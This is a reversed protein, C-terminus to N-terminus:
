VSTYNSKPSTHQRERRRLNTQWGIGAAALLLLGTNPEPVEAVALGRLNQFDGQYLTTISGTGDAAGSQVADDDNANVNFAAWYLTQTTPDIDLSRVTGAPDFLTTTSLSELDLVGVTDLNETFYLQGAAFDAAIDCYTDIGSTLVDQQGTGDPRIRRIVNTNTAYYLYDSASDYIVATPGVGVDILIPQGSGDLSAQYLGPTGEAGLAVTFFYRGGARDVAVDLQVV